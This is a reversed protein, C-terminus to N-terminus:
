NPLDENMIVIPQVQLHLARLPAVFQYINDVIGCVVIHNEALKSNELTEFKVDDLM